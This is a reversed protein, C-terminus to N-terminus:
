DATVKLLALSQYTLETPTPKSLSLYPYTHPLFLLNDRGGGEDVGETYKFVEHNHIEVWHASYTHKRGCQNYFSSFFRVAHQLMAVVDAGPVAGQRVGGGARQAPRTVGRRGDDEPEDQHQAEETVEQREQHEGAEGPQLSGHVQQEDVDAGAVHEDADEPRGEAERGAHAAPPQGAGVPAPPVTEGVRKETLSRAM